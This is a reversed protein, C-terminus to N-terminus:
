FPDFWTKSGSENVEVPDPIGRRLADIELGINNVRGGLGVELFPLLRYFGAAEWILEKAEFTGSQLLTGPTLEQNLRM